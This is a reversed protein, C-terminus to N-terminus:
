TGPSSEARLSRSKKLRCCAHHRFRGHLSGLQTDAIRRPDSLDFIRKFGASRHKKGGWAAQECVYVAKHKVNATGNTPSRTIKASNPLERPLREFLLPVCDASLYCACVILARPM